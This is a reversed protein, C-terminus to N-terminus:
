FSLSEKRVVLLAGRRLPMMPQSQRVKRRKDMMNLDHQPLTIMNSITEDQKSLDLKHQKENEKAM